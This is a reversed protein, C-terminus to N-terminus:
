HFFYKIKRSINQNKTPLTAPLTFADNKRCGQDCSRLEVRVRAVNNKCRQILRKVITIKAHHSRVLLLNFPAIIRFFECSSQFSRLLQPNTWARLVTINCNFAHPDDLLKRRVSDLLVAVPRYIHVVVVVVNKSEGRKKVRLTKTTVM